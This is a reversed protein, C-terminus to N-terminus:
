GVRQIDLNQLAALLGVVIVIGFCLRNAVTAHAAFFMSLCSIKSIITIHNRITM